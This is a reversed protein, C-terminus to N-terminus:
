LWGVARFRRYLFLCTMLIAALVAFYGYQLELEPMNKFNMGYIGAVATPVALIAAWAALRRAIHTQQTQGIMLSAEFAFALVERLADIEEQVRRIHDSVDRFLVQMHEDIAVTEAHELKRCVEVLPVVATRLRLLDRRLMYLREIEAQELERTLVKDEIAEVEDHIAEIVPRYDDVIYDLLAYLMYHEGQALTTPCAECRQRVAAYSSSAGHRVTVVYGRGLFVHTEGFAIRREILQATRAVVFLGSGYQEVKPRQHAKGADEIALPHLDFQAQVQHLLADSPEYLGIWVVHGPKRAWTGAEAVSTEAIRRGAAYVAAAVVGSAPPPVPPTPALM